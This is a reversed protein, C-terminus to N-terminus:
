GAPQPPTAEPKPSRVPKPGKGRISVADLSGDARQTGRVTVRDGVAIDAVKAAEKGRVTVETTADLHVTITGRKKTAVTLTSATKATVSGNVGTLKVHVTIATFTTGEVSGQVAVDTGVTLDAHSGTKGGLRYATAPTLRVTQTEGNRRKLTMSSPGVATIEGRATPTPVTISVITYTGDAKRQQRFRIEDGVALDGVAIPQGGKTLTTDPGVTITRTWGDETKLSLKSGSISTITIDRGAGDGRVKDAKDQGKAKEEEKPTASSRPEASAATGASPDPSAALVAVVPLALILCIAVILGARLRASRRLRRDLETM